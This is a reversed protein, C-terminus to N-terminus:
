GTALRKKMDKLYLQYLRPEFISNVIPNPTPAIDAPFAMTATGLAQTWYRTQVQLPGAQDLREGLGALHFGWIGFSPISVQYAQHDPFVAKLTEGVSWFTRRAFFPSSSQTVVYGGERLTSRIMAYFEVSYLKSLAA